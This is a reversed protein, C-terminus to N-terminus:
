QSAEPTASQNNDQQNQSAAQVTTLFTNLKDFAAGVASIENAGFTGRRVAAELISRINVLDTVTLEPQAGSQVEPQTQTQETM